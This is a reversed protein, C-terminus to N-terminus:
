SRAAKLAAMAAHRNAEVIARALAFARKPQRAGIAERM